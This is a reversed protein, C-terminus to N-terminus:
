DDGRASSAIMNEEYELLWERKLRWEGGDKYARLKGTHMRRLITWMSKQHRKAVDAVTLIPPLSDM